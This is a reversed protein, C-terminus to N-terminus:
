RPLQLAPLYEGAPTRTWWAGTARRDAVTTFRYDYVIARVFRPPHDPFPNPGLLGLVSPSGQLLRICFNTFWPNGPATGLAAFWMQWDLRPQYPAVFGPRRDVDGPKYRFPYTRWTVGDDSGQVSIELRSTTMVAFLGYGNTSRLPAALGDLVAAPEIWAGRVGFMEALPVLTVVAVLAAAVGATVRRWRPAAPAGGMGARRAEVRARLSAPLLRSLAADDFLLLCLAMALWNFFTYNGTLLILVQLAIMAAGGGMRLRRPAVILLPAGIEVVFVLACSLQQFWVPLQFAYWGIWTPLPQTEYHVTLATLHRWSPDGSLLKVWGSEFMLRFLLWLLLGRALRSPPRDRLGRPGWRWPAFFVALLGAELLLSDWQFSMFDGGVTVLSLYLLWLLVLCVAPAVDIVLLVALASGAACQAVLSADSASVWSVTPLLYYRAVGVQQVDFYQRASDLWGAAPLIGQSGMLGLVQIWLSVFAVLYIVGLARLFGWRVLQYSPRQVHRGWLWTTVRGALHRHSAVVRYGFETVSAFLPVHEYCGLPWRAAGGIALARFVAEAGSSLRGDPEILQVALAFREPAIEPFAARLRADQSPLYDIAPGTAQQCRRIWRRCFGCTGDFVMLPRDPRAVVSV